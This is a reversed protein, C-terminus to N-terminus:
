GCAIACCRRYSCRLLQCLDETPWIDLLFKHCTVIVPYEGMVGMGGKPRVQVTSNSNEVQLAYGYASFLAMGKVLRAQGYGLRQPGLAECVPHSLPWIHQRVSFVSQNDRLVIGRCAFVIDDAQM